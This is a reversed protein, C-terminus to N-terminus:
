EAYRVFRVGATAEPDLRRPQEYRELDSASSSWDGGYVSVRAPPAGRRPIDVWEGSSGLVDFLGLENADSHPVEPLGECTCAYCVDGIQPDCDNGEPRRRVLNLWEGAFPLRWGECNPSLYPWDDESYCPAHGEAISLQNALQKAEYWTLQVPRRNEIAAKNMIVNNDSITTERDQVFLPRPLPSGDETETVVVAIAGTTMTYPMPPPPEVEADPTPPDADTMNEMGCAGLALMLSALTVLRM